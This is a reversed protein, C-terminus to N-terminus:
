RETAVQGVDHTACRYLQELEIAHDTGSSQIGYQTADNLLRTLEHFRNGSWQGNGSYRRSSCGTRWHFAPRAPQRRVDSGPLRRLGARLGALREGQAARVYLRPAQQQTIANFLSPGDFTLWQTPLRNAGSLGSLIGGDNFVGIPFGAPSPINYGSTQNGSGGDNSYLATDKSDHSYYGGVRFDVLGQKPDDGKIDLDARFQGISDTVGYGRYLMVHEYLQSAGGVVGANPGSTPDIFGTTYPLIAGDSHYSITQNPIGLLALESETGGNPYERARSYSGDLNLSVRDSLKWDLNLGADGTYTQKDYKEDHFDTAQGVSQTMDIATGNGDTVVDTLNSPTFWHGYSRADTTDSFRSFLTDATIKVDDSAQYQLVLTGGIRQRNEFLM